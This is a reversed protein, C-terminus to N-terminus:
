AINWEYMYNRRTTRNYIANQGRFGGPLYKKNPDFGFCKECWEKASELESDLGGFPNNGDVLMTKLAGEVKSRKSSDYKIYSRCIIMDKNCHDDDSCKACRYYNLFYEYDNKPKGNEGVCNFCIGCFIASCKGCLTYGFVDEIYSSFYLGKGGLKGGNAAGKGDYSQGASIVGLDFLNEAYEELCKDATCSTGDRVTDDWWTGRFWVLAGRLRPDTPDDYNEFAMAVIRFEEPELVVPGIRSPDYFGRQTLIDKAAQVLGARDTPIAGSNAFNKPPTVVVTPKQQPQPQKLLTPIYVPSKPEENKPASTPPLCPGNIEPSNPIRQVPPYFRRYLSSAIWAGITLGGSTAAISLMLKKFKSTKNKSEVSSSTALDLDAACVEVNLCNQVMMFGSLFASCIKLFTKSKKM